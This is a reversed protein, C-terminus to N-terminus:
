LNLTLQSKKGPDQNNLKSIGIGLLRIPRSDTISAQLNDAIEWLLDFSAIYQSDTKSRTIQKFDNFKVKLTVTRGFTDHRKMWTMVKQSIIMLENRMQDRDTIDKEFTTESSISKRIRHPNVPREDIGHAIQYYHRGHKGFLDVLQKERYKKLDAGTHIGMDHMRAATVKGIGHFKDIELAEIFGSVQDPLIVSLGAPKRYDSAVKALFKNISVGASATLKTEKFIEKRINRAILSASSIGPKNETVDLYAEDLSLPEVLDTYRHFIDRIQKSVQKYVAFRPKVFVLHPCQRYALASPMASKIGYKRAEYSATMVVGREKSGGVAIAKNRLEPFDRQEVSAYFADMDIHIIKRM